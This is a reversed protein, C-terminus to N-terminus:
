GQQMLRTRVEARTAAGARRRGAGQSRFDGPPMSHRQLLACCPPHIPLISMSAGMAWALTLLDRGPFDQLGQRHRHRVPRDGCGVAGAKREAGDAIPGELSCCAHEGEARRIWRTLESARWRRGWAGEEPGAQGATAAPRRLTGELIRTALESAGTEM